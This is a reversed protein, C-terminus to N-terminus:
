HDDPSSARASVVPASRAVRPVPPERRPARELRTSPRPSVRAPDPSPARREPSTPRGAVQKREQPRRQVHIAEEVESDRVDFSFAGPLVPDALDFALYALLLLFLRRPRM